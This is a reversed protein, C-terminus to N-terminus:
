KPYSSIYVDIAAQAGQQSGDALGDGSVTMEGQLRDFRVVLNIAAGESGSLSSIDYPDDADFDSDWAQIEVVVTRRDDPVEFSLPGVDRLNGRDSYQQSTKSVGDVLVVFYPDGTGGLPDAPTLERFDVILVRVSADVLPFFDDGDIVGDRDTDQFLPNSGIAVEEYDSLGDVDSDRQFPNTGLTQEESDTLGDGDSDPIPTPTPPAPVPTSTPPPTSPEGPVTAGIDKTTGTCAYGVLCLVLIPGFFRWM